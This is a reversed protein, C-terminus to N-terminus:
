ALERRALELLEGLKPPSFDFECGAVEFLEPLTRTDGLAIARKYNALARGEDELSQQWLQLAGLQAIVYNIMYLPTGFFHPVRQWEIALYAEHGDWNCDPRYARHLEAWKESREAAGHGPNRYAWYEFACTQALWGLGQVVGDYRMRRARALEEAGYFEDLYPLTLLEMSMAAFETFEAGPCRQDMLPHHACALFHLCHGGEHALTEVDRHTGVANMHIAPRRTRENEIMFGGPAKNPRSELDLDGNQELSDFVHGLEPDLRQFVRSTREVLQAASDFPQLPPRGEIDVLLDWPELLDLGLGERRQAREAVIAPACHELAAQLFSECEAAGYDFRQFLPFSYAVFDEYGAARAIRHRRELMSDFIGDIAASAAVRQEATSRWAHERRARDTGQQIVVAAPLTLAEGDIEVSLAGSIGSYESGLAEVQAKLTAGEETFLEVSGRLNRLAIAYGRGELEAAHSSSAIKRDLEFGVRELEPDLESLFRLYEARAAEDATDAHHALYVQTRAGGVASDLESRDLLLQELEAADQVERALLQRYLPELARWDTVDLALPVFSSDPM